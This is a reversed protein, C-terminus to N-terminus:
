AIIFKFTEFKIKTIKSKEEPTILITKTGTRDLPIESVISKPMKLNSTTMYLKKHPPFNQSNIRKIFSKEYEKAINTLYSAKFILDNNTLVREFKIQDGLKWITKFIEKNLFINSIIMHAHYNHSKGIEKVIIMKVDNSIRKLKRKLSALDKQFREYNEPQQRYTFDISYVIEYDPDFNNLILLNIKQLSKQTSKYNRTNTNKPKFERIEGTCVNQIKSNGINRWMNINNKPKPYEIEQFCNKNEFKTLKYNKM